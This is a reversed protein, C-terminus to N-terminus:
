LIWQLETPRASLRNYAESLFLSCLRISGGVRFYPFLLLFNTSEQTAAVKREEIGKRDLLTWIGNKPENKENQDLAASNPETHPDLSDGWFAWASSDGTTNVCVKQSARTNRDFKAVEVAGQKLLRGVESMGFFPGFWLDAMFWNIFGGPGEIQQPNPRRGRPFVLSPPFKYGPRRAIQSDAHHPPPVTSQKTSTKLLSSVSYCPVALVVRAHNVANLRNFPAVLCVKLCRLESWSVSTLIHHVDRGACQAIQAQLPFSKWVQGSRMALIVIESPVGRLVKHTSEWYRLQSVFM